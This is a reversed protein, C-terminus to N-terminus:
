ALTRLILDSAPRFLQDPPEKKINELDIMVSVLILAYAFLVKNVPAYASWIGNRELIDVIRTFPLRRFLVALDIGKPGITSKGWDIIKFDNGHQLVNFRHLDGHLLGYHVAPDIREHFSHFKLREVTNTVMRIVEPSYGRTMISNVLWENVLHFHAPEHIKKLAAVLYAHSYGIEFEGANFRHGIATHDIRSISSYSRVLVDIEGDELNQVIPETGPVKEMTLFCLLSDVRGTIDVVRPAIGGLLHENELVLDYYDIENGSYERTTMKTILTRPEGTITDLLVHEFFGINQMTSNPYSVFRSNLMRHSPVANRIRSLLDEYSMGAFESITEKVVIEARETNGTWCLAQILFVNPYPTGSSRLRLEELHDIVEEHNELGRLFISISLATTGSGLGDIMKDLRDTELSMCSLPKAITQKLEHM